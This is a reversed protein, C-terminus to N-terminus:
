MVEHDNDGGGFIQDAPVESTPIAYFERSGYATVPNGNVDTAIHTAFDYNYGCSVEAGTHGLVLEPEDYENEPMPYYDRATDHLVYGDNAKILYSRFAGNANIYKRMTTNPILTEMTEYAM